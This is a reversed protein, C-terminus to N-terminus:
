EHHYIVFERFDDVKQYRGTVFALLEPFRQQLYGASDLFNFSIMPVCDERGVVIYKPPAAELNRILELRWAPPTWLSILGLNSVFRTPPNRHALFYILPESGWVFVGDQPTSHGDLYHIVHMQGDYHSIPRSWPYNIYFADGDQWWAKLDYFGFRVQVIESPLPLYVLNALVLWILVTAIRFGRGWCRRAIYRFGQFVRVALYGWLMAFFPYCTEFAYSPLRAQVLTCLTGIATVLLVPVTQGLTKTCRAVIISALAVIWTWTGVFHQMHDIVYRWYPKCREAAMANYRPLVVFQVEKMAPWAGVWFFYAFV